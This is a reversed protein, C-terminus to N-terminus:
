IQKLLRFSYKFADISHWSFSFLDVLQLKKICTQLLESIVIVLHIICFLVVPKRHLQLHELLIFWRYWKLMHVLLVKWSFFINYIIFSILYVQVMSLQSNVSVSHQSLLRCFLFSFYVIINREHLNILM